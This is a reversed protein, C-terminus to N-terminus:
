IYTEVCVCVHLHEDLLKLRVERQHGLLSHRDLADGEGPGAIALGQEGSEGVVDHAHPM